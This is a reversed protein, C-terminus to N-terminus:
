IRVFTKKRSMSYLGFWLTGLAGSALLFNDFMGLHSALAAFLTHGITRFPVIDPAIYAVITNLGITIFFFAWRRYGLVDIVYYFPALLLMCWGGSWLVM